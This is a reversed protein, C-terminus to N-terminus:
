RCLLSVPSGSWAHGRMEQFVGLYGLTPEGEGKGFARGDRVLRVEHKVTMGDGPESSVQRSAIFSARLTGTPAQFCKLITGHAAGHPMKERGVQQMM